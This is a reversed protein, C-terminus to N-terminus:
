TVDDNPRSTEYIVDLIDWFQDEGPDYDDVAVQLLQRITAPQLPSYECLEVLGTEDRLNVFKFLANEEGLRELKAHADQPEEAVIQAYRQRHRRSQVFRAIAQYNAQTYRREGWRNRDPSPIHGDAEWRLLTSKSIDFKKCVQAPSYDSEM